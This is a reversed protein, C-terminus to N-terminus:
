APWQAAKLKGATERCSEPIYAFRFTASLSVKIIATTNAVPPLLHMMSAPITPWYMGRYLLLMRWDLQAASQLEQVSLASHVLCNHVGHSQCLLRGRCAQLPKQIYGASLLTCM